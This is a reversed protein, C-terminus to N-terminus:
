TLKRILKPYNGINNAINSESSFRVCKRAFRECLVDNKSTIAARQISESEYRNSKFKVLGKYWLVNFRGTNMGKFIEVTSLTKSIVKRHISYFDNLWVLTAIYKLGVTNKDKIKGTYFAFKNNCLTELDVM